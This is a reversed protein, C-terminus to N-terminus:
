RIHRSTENKKILEHDQRAQQRALLQVITKLSVMDSGGEKSFRNSPQPNVSQTHSPTSM